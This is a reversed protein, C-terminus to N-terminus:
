DAPNKSTRRRSRARGTVIYDIDRQVIAAFRDLLYPPLVSRNEYKKYRDVSIGLADAMQKQSFDRAIRLDRVRRIYAQALASEAENMRRITARLGRSM